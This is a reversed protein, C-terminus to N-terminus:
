NTTTTTTVIGRFSPFRWEGNDTLMHQVEVTVKGKKKLESKVTEAQKGNIAVRKNDIKNYLTLGKPNEEFETFTHKTEKFLKVKRWISSRKGSQYSDDSARSKIVFGEWNQTEAIKFMEEFGSYNSVFEPLLFGYRNSVVIYPIYNTKHFWSGRSWIYNTKHFWSGRSWAGRSNNDKNNKEFYFLYFLMARCPYMKSLLKIKAKNKTHVRSQIISFDEKGYKGRGKAGYYEPRVDYEPFYVLEVDAVLNNNHFGSSCARDIIEPFSETIDNGSRSYIKPKGSSSFHITARVGDYKREVYWNQWFQEDEHIDSLEAKELLMPKFTM